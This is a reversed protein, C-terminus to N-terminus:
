TRTSAADASFDILRFYCDNGGFCNQKTTYIQNDRRKLYRDEKLNMIATKGDGKDEAVFYFDNNDANEGGKEMRGDGKIYYKDHKTEYRPMIACKDTGIDNDDEKTVIHFIHREKDKFDDPCANKKKSNRLDQGDSWCFYNGDLDQLGFFKPFGCASVLDNIYTLKHHFYIFFLIENYTHIHTYMGTTTAQTTTTVRTTTTAATTTTSSTTVPTTTTTPTTTTM